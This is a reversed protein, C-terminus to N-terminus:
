RYSMTVARHHLQDADADRHEKRRVEALRDLTSAMDSGPGTTYSEQLALSRTLLSDAESYKGQTFRVYGLNSEALATLYQCGSCHSLIELARNLNHEASTPKHDELYALGEQSLVAAYRPSEALHLGEYIAKAKRFLPLAREPRHSFMHIQAVNAYAMASDLTKEGGEALLLRLGEEAPALAEDLQNLRLHYSSLGLLTHALQADTAYHQREIGLADTFIAAAEDLKGLVLKASALLNMNTVTHLEEAGLSRRSVQLAKTLLTEGESWRGEGCEAEALNMMVIAAHAEFQPGMDQWMRLSEGLLKEAEAYDGRWSAALGRENLDDAPVRVQAALLLAGGLIM